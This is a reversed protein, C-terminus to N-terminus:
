RSTSEAGYGLEFPHTLRWWQDPPSIGSDLVIPVTVTNPGATWTVSGVEDGKKGTTLTTTEMTATIPTDSWTFISADAELVMQASEGWPTTYTGVVQDQQGVPVDHFGAKLSDLMAIVDRNASDHSFAGAVVGIVTLPEPTGVDLTATFLLNSNDTLTGTKLGTVGDTGLLTNTNAMEDIGPVALAPMAAIQVIAPNAMAIRALAMLDTPTSTNRADIGTPEVIRTSTLGNAALWTQTASVFAGNSGFAWTAMAEAYNSASPILMAQLAQNESMTIGTPMAAITAGLVYYKDYLAHDTKSFTINPGPDDASALPHKSLIVLATILKSISAIPRADNGGATAWLGSAEPPLYDDGGLVTIASAGEPSMALTAPAPAAVEPVESTSEAAGVPATLTYGVYGGTLALVVVTIIGGILLGRRRRRRVVGPDLEPKEVLKEHQMLDTLQTVGDSPEQYWSM